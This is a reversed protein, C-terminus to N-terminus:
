DNNKEIRGIMMTRPMCQRSALPNYDNLPLQPCSANNYSKIPKESVILEKVKKCEKCYCITYKKSEDRAIVWHYDHVGILCLLKRM